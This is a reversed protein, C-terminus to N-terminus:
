IKIDAARRTRILGKVPGKQTSGVSQISARNVTHVQRAGVTACVCITKYVKYLVTCCMSHM